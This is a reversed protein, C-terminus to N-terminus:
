SDVPRFTATFTIGPPGNTFERLRARNTERLVAGGGTALVLPPGAVLAALTEEELDRFGPEGLEAFIARIPRGARAALEVDADAFPRGLREALIRGVTSKGTGRLGVLALGQRNLPDQTM